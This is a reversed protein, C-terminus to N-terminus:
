KFGDRCRPPTIGNRSAINTAEGDLDLCAEQGKVFLLIM